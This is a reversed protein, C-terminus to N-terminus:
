RGSRRTSLLEAALRAACFDAYYDSMEDLEASLSRIMKLARALHSGAVFEPDPSFLSISFSWSLTKLNHWWFPPIYLIEGPRLIEVHATAMPFLPFRELDPADVDRVRSHVADFSMLSYPYLFPADAPAFLAARKDGILHVLFAHVGPDQHTGVSLSRSGAFINSESLPGPAPLSHVADALMPYTAPVDRCQTLYYRRPSSAESGPEFAGSRAMFDDFKMIEHRRNTPEGLTPGASAEQYYATIRQTGIWEALGRGTLGHFRSAELAREIIVPSRTAALERVLGSGTWAVRPISRIARFCLAGQQEVRSV